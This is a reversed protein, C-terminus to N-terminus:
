YVRGIMLGNGCDELPTHDAELGLTEGLLRFLRDNMGTEAMDTPTHSCIAAIGYKILLYAPNEADESTDIMKMPHFIIPHHAIILEAGIDHDEEIVERTIDLATLVKTVESNKDGCILGSNDWSEQSSFPAYRDIVFYIESVKM